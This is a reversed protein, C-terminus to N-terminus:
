NTGVVAVGSELADVVAAAVVDDDSKEDQM